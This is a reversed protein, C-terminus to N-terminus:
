LWQYKWVKGALDNLVVYSFGVLTVTAILVSIVFLNRLQTYIKLKMEQQQEKLSDMTDMLSVFIWFYVLADIRCRVSLGCDWSSTLVFRVIEVLKSSTPYIALYSDGFTILYYVVGFAIFKFTVLSDDLNAKTVGLSPTLVRAIGWGMCVFLTLVRTLTRTSCDVVISAIALFFNPAGTANFVYLYLLKVLMDLVFCALVVLIIVHVSMIEQAYKACLVLWTALLVIYGILLYGTFPFSGYLPAPLQGFPNITEYM